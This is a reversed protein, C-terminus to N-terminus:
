QHTHILRSLLAVTQQITMQSNDVYYADDARKLPYASRNIDQYDRQRLMRMSHFLSCANGHRAQDQKWRMARIYSAATLYVKVDAYPFVATAMDRGDAIVNQEQAVAHQLANVCQRVYPNVSVSSALMDVHSQKLFPTVDEHDIYVHSGTQLSYVYSIRAIVADVDNQQVKSITKQTYGYDRHLSYALARYLLGSYMYYASFRQALIRAVSSKGSAVPGDITIIM